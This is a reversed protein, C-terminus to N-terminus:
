LNIFNELIKLGKSGSKEPHFQCGYCNNSGIMATININNYSTSAIINDVKECIVSYSHVFYMYDHSDIDKLLKMNQTAHLNNWGIHPIKQKNGDKDINPIKKVYGSIIDLGAHEGFEFSKTMLLQMGLCIGLFPNDANIHNYISEILNKERLSKIGKEFAGVGPLVLYDTSLIDKKCSILTPNAGIYNFAQIVNHINSIGYDIIGIKNSM